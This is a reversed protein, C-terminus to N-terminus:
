HAFNNVVGGSYKYWIIIIIIVKIKTIQNTMTFSLVCEAGKRHREWNRVDNYVVKLGSKEKKKNAKKRLKTPIQEYLEKIDGGGAGGGLM